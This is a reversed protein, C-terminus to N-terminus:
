YTQPTQWAFRTSTPVFGTVTHLTTWTTSDNSGWLTWDTPDREVADNATAWRYGQFSRTQGVGFDFVVDSFLNLKINFDLWKTNLNSDILNPVQEGSPNSGNPNTVTVGLMSQDIGSVQFAFEAVQVSNALSFNQLGTIRWRYYRYGVVPPIVPDELYPYVNFCDGGTMSVVVPLSVNIYSDGYLAGSGVLNIIDAGIVPEVPPGSAYTLVVNSFRLTLDVSTDGSNFSAFGVSFTGADISRTYTGSTATTTSAVLFTGNNSSISHGSITFYAKDNYFPSGIDGGSITWTFTITATSPVTITTTYRTAAGNTVSTFSGASVGLLTAIASLTSGNSVVNIAGASSSVSGVSTWSSLSNTPLTLSM